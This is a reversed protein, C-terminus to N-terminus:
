QLNSCCNIKSSKRIVLGGDKVFTEPSLHMSTTVGMRALCRSYDLRKRLGVRRPHLMHKQSGLALFEIDDDDMTMMMVMMM